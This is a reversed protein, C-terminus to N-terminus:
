NDSPIERPTVDVAKSFPDAYLIAEVEKPTLAVQVETVTGSHEVAKLQARTYKLLATYAQLREGDKLDGFVLLELVARLDADPGLDKGTLEHLIDRVAEISTRRKEKPQGPPHPM